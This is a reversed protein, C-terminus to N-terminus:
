PLASPADDGAQVPSHSPPRYPLTGPATADEQSPPQLGPYAQGAPETLAVATSHAAPCNERPPAAAHLGQGPPEKPDLGPRVAVAQEPAQLGPYAHPGPDVVLVAVTHGTPLNLTAPADTHVAQAGPRYALVVPVATPTQAPGQAGPRNPALAPAIESWHSPGQAAPKTQGAPELLEVATGHGAPVYLVLPAPTHVGQLAPRYPETGPTVDGRQM